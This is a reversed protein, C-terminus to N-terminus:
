TFGNWATENVLQTLSRYKQQREKVLADSDKANLQDIYKVLQSKLTALFAQPDHHAGGLPEDIIQDILHHRLLDKATLQM